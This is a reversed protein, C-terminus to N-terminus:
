MKEARWGHQGQEAPLSRCVCFIHTILCMSAARSSRWASRECASTNTSFMLTRWGDLVEFTVWAWSAILWPLTAPNNFPPLPPSLYFHTIFVNITGTVHFAGQTMLRINQWVPSYAEPSTPRIPKKFASTLYFNRKMDTDSTLCATPVIVTLLIM